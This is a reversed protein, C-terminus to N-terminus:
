WRTRRRAEEERATRRQSRWRRWVVVWSAVAAAAVGGHLVGSGGTAWLGVMVAVVTVVGITVITLSAGSGDGRV